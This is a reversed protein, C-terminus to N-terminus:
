DWYPQALKAPAKGTEAREIHERYYDHSAAVSIGQGHALGDLGMLAGLEARDQPSMEHGPQGTDYPEYDEPRDTVAGAKLRHSWTARSPPADIKLWGWATGRGGTVSWSKGSRRELATKIRKIVTARDLNEETATNM